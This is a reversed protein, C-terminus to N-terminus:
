DAHQLFSLTNALAEPRELQELIATTPLADLSAFRLFEPKAHCFLLDLAFRNKGYLGRHLMNASFVLLDGKNLAIKEGSDLDDSPKCDNTAMRVDLEQQNDWRRHSGSVLEIGPEDKLAIRFHIVDGQEPNLAQQQQELSLHYQCDRHWYNAQERNLPNFFLQSNLFAPTILLAEALETIKANAIFQFLALRLDGPLAQKDTLYASNIAGNQYAKQNRALWIHHFRNLVPEIADIQRHGFYNPLHVFGHQQYQEVLYHYQEDM